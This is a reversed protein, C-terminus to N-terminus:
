NIMIFRDLYVRTHIYVCVRGCLVTLLHVMAIINPRVCANIYIHCEKILHLHKHYECHYHLLLFILRPTSGIHLMEFNFIDFPFLHVAALLKSWKKLEELLM